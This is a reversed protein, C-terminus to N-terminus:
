YHRIHRVLRGIIRGGKALKETRYNPNLPHLEVIDVGKADRGGSRYQRFVADEGPARVAAIFDGPKAKADQDFFVEEGEYFSHSRDRDPPVMSDDLLELAFINRGLGSSAILATTATPEPLPEGPFIRAAQKLSYKPVTRVSTKPRTAVHSGASAYEPPADAGTLLFNVSVNFANAFTEVFQPNPRRGRRGSEIHKYWDYNWGHADAAEKAESFLQQRAWRLRGVWEPPSPAASAPSRSARKKRGVM